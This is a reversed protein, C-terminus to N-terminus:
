RYLCVYIPVPLLLYQLGIHFISLGLSFHHVFRTPTIVIAGVENKKLPDERKILKELIPIM